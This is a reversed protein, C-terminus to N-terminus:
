TQDFGPATVAETLAVVQAELEAIRRKSAKVSDGMEIKRMDPMPSKSRGQDVTGGGDLNAQALAQTGALVQTHGLDHRHHHLRRLHQAHGFGIYQGFDLGAVELGALDAALPADGLSRQVFEQAASGCDM